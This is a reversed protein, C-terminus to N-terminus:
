IAMGANDMGWCHLPIEKDYKNPLVTGDILTDSRLVSLM